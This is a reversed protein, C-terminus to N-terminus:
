KFLFQLKDKQNTQDKKRKEDLISVSEMLNKANSNPLVSGRDFISKRVSPNVEQLNNDNQVKWAVENKKPPYQKIFIENQLGIIDNPKMFFDQLYKLDATKNEEFINDVEKEHALLNKNLYKRKKKDDEIEQHYIKEQLEKNPTNYYELDNIEQNMLPASMDIIDNPLIAECFENKTLTQTRDRDLRRMLAKYNELHFVKSAKSM